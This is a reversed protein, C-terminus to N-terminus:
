YGEKRGKGGVDFPDFYEGEDFYYYKQLIRTMECRRSKKLRKKGGQFGVQM